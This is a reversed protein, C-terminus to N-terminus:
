LGDKEKRMLYTKRGGYVMGAGILIEVFGIPTPTGPGGNGPQALMLTVGGLLLSCTLVTKMLNNSRM